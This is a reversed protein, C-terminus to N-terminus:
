FAAIIFSTTPIVECPHKNLFCVGSYQTLFGVAKNSKVGKRM